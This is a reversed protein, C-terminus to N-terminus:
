CRRAARRARSCRRTAATAPSSRPRCASRTATSRSRPPRTASRARRARPQVVGDGGAAPRRPQDVTPGVTREVTAFSSLPVLAGTTALARLHQQVRERGAQRRARSGHDGPLQRGATYITSSRASASPATSRRASRTSRRRRAHQRQRPRDEALGAPGEAALRQHRRPVDPRRADAGAAQLAWDNLEGAQVSQLIYQYQAKSQRGGLQLNQIPRMYVASAPCRACSAPAPERGGAEDAPARRAAEPQRVHPRHEALRRRRRATSRTSPRARESRRAAITPSARGAARVM